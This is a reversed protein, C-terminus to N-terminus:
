LKGDGCGFYLTCILFFLHLSVNNLDQLRESNAKIEAEFAQHKKLKEHLNALDRYSEDTATKYKEKIWDSLQFEVLLFIMNWIFFHHKKM